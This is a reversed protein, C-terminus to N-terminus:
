KKTRKNNKNKSGPKRGRKNPVTVNMRTQLNISSNTLDRLREIADLMDNEEDPSSTSQNGANLETEGSLGNEDPSNDSQIQNLNVFQRNDSSIQSSEVSSNQDANSQERNLREVNGSQTAELNETSQTAMPNHNEDQISRSEILRRANVRAMELMNEEKKKKERTNSLKSQIAAKLHEQIFFPNNIM